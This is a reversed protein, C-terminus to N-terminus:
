RSSDPGDPSQLDDKALRDRALPLIAAQLEAASYRRYAELGRPAPALPLFVDADSVKVKRRAPKPRTPSSDVAPGESPHAWLCELYVGPVRFLRIEFRPDAAFSGPDVTPLLRRLAVATSAVFPGSNLRAFEFEPTARSATAPRASVEVAAIPRESSTLLFRWGVELANSFVVGRVVDELTGLYVVHPVSLEAEDDTSSAFAERSALAPRSRLQSLGLQAASVAGAPPFAVQINVTQVSLQADV